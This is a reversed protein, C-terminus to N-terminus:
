VGSQPADFAHINCSALYHEENTRMMLLHTIVDDTPCVGGAFTGETYLVAHGCLTHKPTVVYNEDTIELNCVITPFGKRFIYLEDSHSVEWFVGSIFYDAWQQESIHSRLLEQARKEMEVGHAYANAEVTRMLIAVAKEGRSEVKLVLSSEPPFINYIGMEAIVQSVGLANIVLSNHFKQALDSLTGKRLFLHPLEM